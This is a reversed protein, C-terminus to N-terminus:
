TYARRKEMSFTRITQMNTRVSVPLQPIWTANGRRWLIRFAVLNANLELPLGDKFKSIVFLDKGAGPALVFSVTSGAAARLISRPELDEAIGFVEPRVAIGLIAIGYTSPNEVSLYASRDENDKFSLYAVPRGKALRDYFFVVGTLLGVFSGLTKVIELVYM